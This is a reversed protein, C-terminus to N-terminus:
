RKRKASGKNRNKVCLLVFDLIFNIGMMAACIILIGIQGKTSYLLSESYLGGFLHACSVAVGFVALGMLLTTILSFILIKVTSVRSLVRSDFVLDNAENLNLSIFATEPPLAVVSSYDKNDISEKVNIVGHGQGDSGFVVIDYDIYRTNKALHLVLSKEGDRETIVYQKVHKAMWAPPEYLCTQENETVTKRIGRDRTKKVSCKDHLFLRPLYAVSIICYIAIVAILLIIWVAM